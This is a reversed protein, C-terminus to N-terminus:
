SSRSLRAAMRLARLQALADLADDDLSAVLARALDSVAREAAYHLTRRQGVAAYV